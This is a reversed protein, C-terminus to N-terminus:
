QTSKGGTTEIEKDRDRLQEVNLTLLRATETNGTVVRFLDAGKVDDLVIAPRADPKVHDLTINNMTIGDVHRCYLGYAPLEGFMFYEPYSTENEPIEREVLEADGGGAMTLHINSLHVNCIPHSPIGAIACGIKDGGTAVVDRIIVHHLAAVSPKADSTEGDQKVLPRARNGLRIFLPNAVNVMSIGSVIVRRLSGGDVAELAIGSLKTDYITCNSITIDEFGSHSETGCKLANCLSKLNCNTVTVHRCPLHTTSKLVISDDVSSIHCNAVRVFECSDIDIGDNNANALSDVTVGNINVGSCGLYHQVWMAANKLTVDRVLVDRCEVFRMMYPRQKYPKKRFSDAKGQGDIMGRGVIAVNKAKEAYILSRDVYHVDTYSRLKPVHPEYDELRTSGLLVAGSDLCLTVHDKLVLSGTLFTGAPIRVVGGGAATCEDIARQINKTNLAKGDAVAGFDTVVRDAGAAFGQWGGGLSIATWVALACATKSVGRVNRPINYRM